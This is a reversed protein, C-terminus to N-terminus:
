SINEAVKTELVNMECLEEQMESMKANKAGVSKDQVHAAILEDLADECMNDINHTRKDREKLRQKRKELM